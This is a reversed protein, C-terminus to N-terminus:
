TFVSWHYSTMVDIHQFCELTRKMVSLFSCLFLYTEGKCVPLVANNGASMTFYLVLVGVLAEYWRQFTSLKSLQSREFWVHKLGFPSLYMAQTQCCVLWLILSSSSYLIVYTVSICVFISYFLMTIPLFASACYHPKFVCLSIHYHLVYPLFGNMISVCAPLGDWLPFKYSM